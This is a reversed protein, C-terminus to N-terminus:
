DEARHDTGALRTLRGALQTILRLATTEFVRRPEGEFWKKVQAFAEPKFPVEKFPHLRLDM